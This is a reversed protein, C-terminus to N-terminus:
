IKLISTIKGEMMDGNKFTQQLERCLVFLRRHREKRGLPIKQEPNGVLVKYTDTNKGRLHWVGRGNRGRKNSSEIQHATCIM